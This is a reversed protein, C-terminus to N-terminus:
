PQVAEESILKGAEMVKFVVPRQLFAGLKKGLELMPTSDYFVDSNVNFSPGEGSELKVTLTHIADDGHILM